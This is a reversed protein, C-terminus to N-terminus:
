EQNTELRSRESLHSLISQAKLAIEYQNEGYIMAKKIEEAFDYLKRKQYRDFLIEVYSDIKDIDVFDDVYEVDKWEVSERKIIDLTKIKDWLVIRDFIQFRKLGSYIAMYKGHSFHEPQVLQLIQMRKDENVHANFFFGMVNAEAELNYLNVDSM